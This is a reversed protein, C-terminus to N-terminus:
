SLSIPTQCNPCRAVDPAIANGTFAGLLLGVGGGILLAPIAVPAGAIAGAVGLGATLLAGAGTGAGGGIIRAIWKGRKDRKFTVSKDCKPCFIERAKEM